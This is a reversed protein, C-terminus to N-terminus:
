LSPRFTRIYVIALIWGRATNQGCSSLVYPGSGADESLVAVFPAAAVGAVAEFPAGAVAEFPAGAVAEFPAARPVRDTDHCNCPRATVYM